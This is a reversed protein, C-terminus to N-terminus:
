RRSRRVRSSVPTTRTSRCIPPSARYQSTYTGEQQTELAELTQANREEVAIRERELKLKEQGYIIEILAIVCFGIMMCLLIVKGYYRNRRRNGRNPREPERIRYEM